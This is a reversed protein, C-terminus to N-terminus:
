VGYFGRTFEKLEPEHEDDNEEKADKIQNFFDEEMGGYSIGGDCFGQLMHAIEKGTYEHMGRGYWYALFWKAEEETKPSGTTAELWERTKELM